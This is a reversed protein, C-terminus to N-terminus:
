EVVWYVRNGGGRRIQGTSVDGNDFNADLRAIAADSLNTGVAGVGFFGYGDDFDWSGGIPTSEGWAAPSIYDELVTPVGGTSSDGISAAGSFLLFHQAAGEFVRCDNVFRTMRSSERVGKFSPIAIAAILGIIVVVVMIEVLTFGSEFNRERQM